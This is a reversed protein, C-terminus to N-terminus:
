VGDLRTKSVYGGFIAGFLVPIIFLREYFKEIVISYILGVIGLLAVIIIAYSFGKMFIPGLVGQSKLHVALGYPARSTFQYILHFSLNIFVLVTLRTTWIEESYLFVYIMSVILTVYALYKHLKAIEDKHTM